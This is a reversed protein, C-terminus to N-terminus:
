PLLLERVKQVAARRAEERMQQQQRLSLVQLPQRQAESTAASKAPAPLYIRTMGPQQVRGGVLRADVAHQGAPQTAAQEEGRQQQQQQQQQMQQSQQMRQQQAALLFALNQTAAKAQVPLPASPSDRDVRTVQFAAAWFLM